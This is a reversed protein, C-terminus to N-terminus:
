SPYPLPPPPQDISTIPFYDVLLEEKEAFVHTSNRKIFLRQRM